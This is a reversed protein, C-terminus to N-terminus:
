CQVYEGKQHHWRWRRSENFEEDGVEDVLYEVTEDADEIHEIGEAELVPSAGFSFFRSRGETLKEAKEIADTQSDADIAITKVRVQVYLHVHYRM